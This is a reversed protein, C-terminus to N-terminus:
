TTSVIHRSYQVLLLFQCYVQMSSFTAACSFACLKQKYFYLHLDISSLLYIVMLLLLRGKM